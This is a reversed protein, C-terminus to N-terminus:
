IGRAGKEEAVGGERGLHLGAERHASWLVNGGLHQGAQIARCVVTNAAVPPGQADDGVFQQKIGCGELSVGSSLGVAIDHVVLNTLLM